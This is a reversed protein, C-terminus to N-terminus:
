FYLIACLKSSEVTETFSMGSEGRRLRMLAKWILDEVLLKVTMAWTIERGRGKKEKFHKRKGGTSISESLVGLLLVLPEGGELIGLVLESLGVHGRRKVGMRDKAKM